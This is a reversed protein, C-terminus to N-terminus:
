EHNRENDMNRVEDFIMLDAQLAALNPRVREVPNVRAARAPARAAARLLPNGNRAAWVMAQNEIAEQLVVDAGRFAENVDGWVNPQVIPEPIPIEQFYESLKKEKKDKNMLAFKANTVGESMGRAYADDFPLLDGLVTQFFQQYMSTDNLTQLTKEMDEFDTKKAFLMIAGIINLWKKLKVLDNTGHMHRWEVTGHERIPLLNLATYKQWVKVASNTNAFLQRVFEANMRCQTWPICYINTDRCYGQEERQNFHNVFEFLVDEFVTYALCLTALQAQTFDTVNAHVHVSTRDSYNHDNFQNKTFFHELEAIMSNMRLPNSIFEWSLRQPRLSGDETFRWISPNIMDEATDSSGVNEIELEMGVVLDPNICIPVPLSSKAVTPFKVGLVKAVTTAEM